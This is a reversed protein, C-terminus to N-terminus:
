NNRFFQKLMRTSLVIEPHLGLASNTPGLFEAQLTLLITDLGFTLNIREKPIINEKFLQYLFTCHSAPTRVVCDRAEHERGVTFALVAM